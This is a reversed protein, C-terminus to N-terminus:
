CCKGNIEIGSCVFGSPFLAPYSCTRPNSNNPFGDATDITYETSCPCPNKFGINGGFVTKLENRKLMEDAELKFNKM